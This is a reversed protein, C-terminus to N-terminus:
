LEGPLASSRRAPASPQRRRRRLSSLRRSAGRRGPRSLVELLAPKARRVVPPSGRPIRFHVLLRVVVRQRGRADAELRKRSTARNARCPACPPRQSCGKRGQNQGRTSRNLGGHARLRDRSWERFSREGRGLGQRGQRGPHRRHRGPLRQPGQEIHFDLAIRQIMFEGQAM